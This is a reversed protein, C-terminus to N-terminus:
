GNTYRAYFSSPQNSFLNASNNTNATSNCENTPPFMSETTSSTEITPLCFPPFPFRTSSTPPPPPPPGSSRPQTSGNPYILPSTSAPLQQHVSAIKRWRARRNSFWVQVRAETLGTRRSLEERAHVDPYQTRQFVQELQEIQDQSFSTRYRRNKKTKDSNIKEDNLEDTHNDRLVRTLTSLSPLATPKCIGDRVLRERIEWVFM